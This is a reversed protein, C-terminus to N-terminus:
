IADEAIAADAIREFADAEAARKANYAELAREDMARVRTRKKAARAEERVLKGPFPNASDRLWIRMTTM